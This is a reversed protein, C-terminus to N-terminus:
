KFFLDSLYELNNLIFQQLSSDLYKAILFILGANSFLLFLYILILHSNVIFVSRQKLVFRKNM